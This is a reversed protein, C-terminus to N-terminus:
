NSFPSPPDPDVLHRAWVAVDPPGVLLRAHAEVPSERRLALMRSINDRLVREQRAREQEALESSVRRACLLYSLGTLGWLVAFPAAIALIIVLTAGGPTPTGRFAFVGPFITALDAWRAIIAGLAAAFPVALLQSRRM